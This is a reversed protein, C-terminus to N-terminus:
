CCIPRPSRVIVVNCKLTTINNLNECQIELDLQLLPRHSSLNLHIAFTVNEKPQEMAKRAAFAELMATKGTGNGGIIIVRPLKDALEMLFAQTQTWFGWRPINGSGGEMTISAALTTDFMEQIIPGKLTGALAPCM